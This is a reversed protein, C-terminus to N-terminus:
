ACRLSLTHGCALTFVDFNQEFSDAEVRIDVVDQPMGPESDEDSACWICWEQKPFQEGLETPLDDRTILGDDPLTAYNLQSLQANDSRALDKLTM